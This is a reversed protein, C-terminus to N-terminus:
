HLLRYVMLMIVIDLNPLSNAMSEKPSFPYYCLDGSVWLVLHSHFVTDVTRQYSHFQIILVESSM